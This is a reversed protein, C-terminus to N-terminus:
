LTPFVCEITTKAIDDSLNHADDRTAYQVIANLKERHLLSGIHKEYDPGYRASMALNYIPQDKVTQVKISGFIGFYNLLLSIDSILQESRSCVRIQKRTEDSQFNGDGDFYAQILGAKFENPATFAFDPVRKVFSGTGM